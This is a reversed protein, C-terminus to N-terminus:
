EVIQQPLVLLVFGHSAMGKKEKGALPKLEPM